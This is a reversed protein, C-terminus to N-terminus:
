PLTSCEVHSFLRSFKRSLRGVLQFIGVFFQICFEEIILFSFKNVDFTVHSSNILLLYGIACASRHIFYRSTPGKRVLVGDVAGETEFIMPNTPLNKCENFDEETQVEFIERVDVTNTNCWAIIATTEGLVTVRNNNTRISDLDWRVVVVCGVGSCPVNEVPNGV